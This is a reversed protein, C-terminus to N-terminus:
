MGAIEHLDQEKVQAEAKGKVVMCQITNHRM